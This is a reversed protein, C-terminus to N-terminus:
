FALIKALETFGQEAALDAPIKGGEMEVTIDAGAELLLIILDINGNKAASHLPTVAAMQQVNVNAGAELLMKAIITHNNAIASHIPFVNYGNQSPINPNSGNLLLYRTVDENGFYAALGLGTFGDSSYEEILDPSQHLHKAVLDVRNISAAEYFSINTLHNAVIVALEPKKYYCCLMLPSVQHSTSETALAPNTQLLSELAKADGAQIYEEVLAQSM